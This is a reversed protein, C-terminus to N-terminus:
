LAPNGPRVGTRFGSMLQTLLFFLSYKAFSCMEFGSDNQFVTIKESSLLNLRQLLSPCYFTHLCTPFSSSGLFVMFVTLYPVPDTRTQLHIDAPPTPSSTNM